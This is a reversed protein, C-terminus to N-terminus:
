GPPLLVGATRRPDMSPVDHEIGRALLFEELDKWEARGATRWGLRAAITRLHENAGAEPHRVRRSQAIPIGLQM